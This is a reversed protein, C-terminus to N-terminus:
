RAKNTSRALSYAYKDLMIRLIRGTSDGGVLEHAKDLTMGEAELLFVKFSNIATLRAKKSNAPALSAISMVGIGCVVTQLLPGVVAVQDSVEPHSYPVPTMRYGGSYHSIDNALPIQIQAPFEPAHVFGKQGLLREYPRPAPVFGFCRLTIALLKNPFLWNLNPPRFRLFFASASHIHVKALEKLHEATMESDSVGAADLIDLDVDSSPLWIGTSYSGFTEVWLTPVSDRVNTIQRSLNCLSHWDWVPM